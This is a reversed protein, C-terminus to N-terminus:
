KWNEIKIGTKVFATNPKRFDSIHFLDTAGAVLSGCSSPACSQLTISVM